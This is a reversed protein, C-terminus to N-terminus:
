PGSTNSTEAARQSLQQKQQEVQVRLAELQGQDVCQRTPILEGIEAETKCFSYNDGKIVVQTYGQDHAFVLLNQPVASKMAKISAAAAASSAPAATAAPAPSSAGAANQDTMQPQSACGAAAILATGLLLRFRFSNM